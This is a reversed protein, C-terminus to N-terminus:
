VLFKLLRWGGGRPNTHGVLQRTDSNAFGWIRSIVFDPLGLQTDVADDFAERIVAVTENQKDLFLETAERSLPGVYEIPLM